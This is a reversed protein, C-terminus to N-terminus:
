LMVEKLYLKRYTIGLAYANAEVTNDFGAAKRRANVHDADKIPWIIWETKGNKLTRYAGQSGYIQEENEDMLYRDLMMAYLRFPLEGQVAARKIIPLYKSIKPSHQIVFWASENAPSGVLSKGPYGYKAFLKEVFVVNLLDLRGQLKWYHKNAQAVSMKLSKALLGQQAPLTLQMLTDRYKQDLVIISDLQHKLKNNITKQGFAQQCVMLLFCCLARKM